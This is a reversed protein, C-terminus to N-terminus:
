EPTPYPMTQKAKPLYQQKEYMARQMWWVRGVGVGTAKVKELFALAEDRKGEAVKVAEELKRAAEEAEETARVAALRAEEAREKAREAEAKKEEAVAVAKESKRVAAQQNLKAKRLPLPDEAKVQALENAAKNRSVVGGEQSKKELLAIKAQYADEQAQLEAAAAKQEEAAVECARVAEESAKVADAAAAVAREADKEADKLRATVAKQAELQAMVEDLAANAEDVLVQAAELEKPDGQPANVLHAPSKAYKFLLYESIAMKKNKDLDIEALKARLQLVTMTEGADELFKHSWFEDLENTDKQLKNFDAAFGWLEEAKEKLGDGWFANLFWITQDDHTKAVLDQWKGKDFSVM